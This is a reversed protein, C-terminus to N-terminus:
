FTENQVGNMKIEEEVIIKELYVAADLLELQAHKAWELLPLQEDAMSIGYKKLGIEARQLLKQAVMEEIM